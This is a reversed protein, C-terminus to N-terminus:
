ARGDSVASRWGDLNRSPSAPGLLTDYEERIVGYCECAAAELADRDVVNILGRRYDIAGTAQLRGAEETVTARRVGMMQALFEQTMPFTDVGVRDHCMLLWLAMRQGAAHIRNCAAAQAIMSFLAQTYRQLLDRLPGNTSVEERLAESPMRLAEGPVQAFARVNATAAGLFVPLGVMGENGVTGVEAASGDRMIAIMSIVGNLPFYVYPIPKDKEWVTERLGLEVRELRSRLRAQVDHPLAALLRNERPVPADTWRAGVLAM